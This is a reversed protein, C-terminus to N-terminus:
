NDDNTLSKFYLHPPKVRVRVIPSKQSHNYLARGPDDFLQVLSEETAEYLGVGAWPSKKARSKKCADSSWNYLQRLM